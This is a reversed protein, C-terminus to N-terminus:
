RFSVQFLIRRWARTLSKLLQTRLAEGAMQSIACGELDGVGGHAVRMLREKGGPHAGEVYDSGRRVDGTHHRLEEGGLHPAPRGEVHGKAEQM